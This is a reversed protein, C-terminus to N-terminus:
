IAADVVLMGELVLDPFYQWQEKVQSDRVLWEADGGTLVFRRVGVDDMYHTILHPLMGLMMQEAGLCVADTTNLALKGASKEASDSKASNAIRATSQLLSNQMLRRGPAILGGLHQGDAAAVDITIATGCDVVMIAEDNIRQRAGVLALWRDVGWNEPQKYGCHIGGGSQPVMVQRLPVNQEDAWQQLQNVVADAGVAAVVVEALEASLNSNSLQRLLEAVGTAAHFTQQGLWEPWQGWRDSSDGVEVAPAIATQVWKIRSNGVDVYLKNM